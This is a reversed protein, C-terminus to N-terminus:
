FIQTQQLSEIGKFKEIKLIFCQLKFDYLTFLVFLKLTMKM